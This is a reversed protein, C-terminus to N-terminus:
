TREAAHFPSDEPAREPEHWRTPPRVFGRVTRWRYSDSGSEAADLAAFDLVRNVTDIDYGDSRVV